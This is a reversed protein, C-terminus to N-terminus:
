RSRALRPQPEAALRAGIKMISLGVSRRVSTPKLELLQRDRVREVIEQERRQRAEELQMRNIMM